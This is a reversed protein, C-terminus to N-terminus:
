RRPGATELKSFETVHSFSNRIGLRSILDLNAVLEFDSHSVLKLGARYRASQTRDFTMRFILRPGVGSKAGSNM